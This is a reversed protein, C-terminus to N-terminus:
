RTALRPLKEERMAVNYLLTAVVIAAQRLDEPQLREYTDFNTHHTRTEYDLPDQRLSPTPIGAQEFTWCDAGCDSRASVMSVGLDRLPALWEEFIPVLAMNHSLSVGRIKGGGADLNFMASIREHLPKPHLPGSGERLFDPAIGAALPVGAVHRSVWARSGLSGQEEGTWLAIRITRKPKTDLVRLIRMAEMAILVGAGDDTAGTAAHWSDLHAGVMVLEDKVKPDSGPIDAFTNFEEVADGTFETDVFMELSVPVKRGIM